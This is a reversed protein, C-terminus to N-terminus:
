KYFEYTTIFNVVANSENDKWLERKILGNDYFDYKTEEDGKIILNGKDNYEYTDYVKWDKDKESYSLVKSKKDFNNYEYKYHENYQSFDSYKTEEEILKGKLNYIYQKIIKSKNNDRTLIKLEHTKNGKNDYKFTTIYNESSLIEKPTTGTEKKLLGKSNYYYNITFRLDKLLDYKEKSYSYKDEKVLRNSSDYKYIWAENIPEDGLAKICEDDRKNLNLIKQIITKEILNGITDYKYTTTHDYSVVDWFTFVYDLKVKGDIDFEEKFLVRGLSKTTDESEYYMTTVNKLKNKLIIDQYNKTLGLQSFGNIAWFMICM